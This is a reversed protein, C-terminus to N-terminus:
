GVEREGVGSALEETRPRRELPPTQFRADEGLGTV